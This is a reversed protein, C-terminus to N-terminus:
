IWRAPSGCSESSGSECGTRRRFARDRGMIFRSSGYKTSFRFPNLRAMPGTARIGEGFPGYEYQASISGDAASLLAVVNGNADFAAYHVGNTGANVWLLGGVGGAGQLSGSVDLGWCYTQAQHTAGDLEGILNWGDYWYQKETALQYANSSSNWLSIKKDICRGLDDYALQETLLSAVPANSLSAIGTLRNEADWTYTFRGDSLLNGDLDYTFTEPTQPLYSNGIITVANTGLVAQNTISPYIAGGTNDVALKLRYYSGSTYPTQGNLTVTANSNVSGMLDVVGPVTRNTYQNLLNAGYSASSFNAGNQDGGFAATQRNGISDFSYGFQQGAVLGGGPWNKAAGTVQGLADYQYVWYTGDGNTVSVRQNANNYAYNFDVASSSSVGTLRNFSDYQKTTTMRTTGNNQFAISGVLSADTL